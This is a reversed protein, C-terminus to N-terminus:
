ETPLLADVSVGFTAAIGPLKDITPTNDGREWNRVTKDTVDVSAGRLAAAAEEVSWGREERLARLRAGLRGAYTTLDPEKPPRGM